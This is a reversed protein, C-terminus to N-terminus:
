AASALRRRRMAAGTLGFGAILMAWSAPEPVAPGSDRVTIGEAALMAGEGNQTTFLATGGTVLGTYVYRFGTTGDTVPSDAAVNATRVVAPDVRADVLRMSSGLATLAANIRANTGSYNEGNEGTFLINGGNALFGALLTLEATSYSNHPAFGIFLSKGDFDAASLTVNPGLYRMLMGQSFLFSNIPSELTGLNLDTTNQFTVGSGAINLLFQQNATFTEGAFGFTDRVGFINSDASVFLAAQAPMALVSALLICHITRIM